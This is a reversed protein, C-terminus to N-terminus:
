CENKVFWDITKGIGESLSHKPRWDLLKQAKSINARWYLTDTERPPYGGVKIKIKKGLHQEILQVVEENKTQQGGAINIVEGAIGPMFMAKLYAEIVDEVFVYDRVFGPSTLALTGDNLGSKIATPILRTAPERYGYVAFPRLVVIFRGPDHSAQRAMLTTTAKAAGYETKPALPDDERIPTNKIGNELSSGTHIIRCPWEKTAMLLNHTALINDKFLRTRDNQGPYCGSGALHFIIDPQIEQFIKEVAKIYSLDCHHMVIRDELGELRGRDSGSRIIVHPKVGSDILARLLCSGIFGAGGTVLVLTNVM